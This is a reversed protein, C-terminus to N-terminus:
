KYILGPDVRPVETSEPKKPKQPKTSKKFAMDLTKVNFDINNVAGYNLAKNVVYRYEPWFKQGLKVETTKIIFNSVMFGFTDADDREEFVYIYFKSFEDVVEQLPRVPLLYYGEEYYDNSILAVWYKKKSPKVKYRFKERLKEHVWLPVRRILYKIYIKDKKNARRKFASPQQIIRPLVRFNNWRDFEHILLVLDRDWEEESEKLRNFNNIIRQNSIKSLLNASDGSYVAAQKRTLRKEIVGEIYDRFSEDCPCDPSFLSSHKEFYDSFLRFFKEAREKIELYKYHSLKLIEGAEWSTKSESLQLFLSQQEKETLCDWAKLQAENM